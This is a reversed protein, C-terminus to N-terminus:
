KQGFVTLFHGNKGFIWIKSPKQSIVKGDQKWKSYVRHKKKIAQKVEPTIWPADKDNITAERNPINCNMIDLFTKSFCTVM